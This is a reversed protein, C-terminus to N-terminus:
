NLMHFVLLLLLWFLPQIKSTVVVTVNVLAHGQAKEMVAPVSGASHCPSAHVKAHCIVIRM